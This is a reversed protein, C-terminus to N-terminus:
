CEGTGKKSILRNSTWCVLFKAFIVSKQRQKNSIWCFDSPIGVSVSTWGTWGNRADLRNSRVKVPSQVLLLIWDNGVSELPIGVSQGSPGDSIAPDSLLIVSDMPCVTPTYLVASYTMGVSESPWELLNWCELLNWPGNRCIGVNWCIGFAM